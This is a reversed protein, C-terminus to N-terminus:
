ELSDVLQPICNEDLDAKAEELEEGLCVITKWHSTGMSPAIRVPGSVAYVDGDIGLAETIFSEVRMEALQRLEYRKESTAEKVEDEIVRRQISGLFQLDDRSFRLSSLVGKSVVVNQSVQWLINTLMPKTQVLTDLKRLWMRATPHDVTELIKRAEDYRKQTILERAATLAQRSM